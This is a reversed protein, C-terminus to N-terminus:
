SGTPKGAVVAPTKEAATLVARASVELPRFSPDHRRAEANAVALALQLRQQYLSLAVQYAAANEGDDSGFTASSSVSGTSGGRTVAGESVGVTYQDNGEIIPPIPRPEALAQAANMVESPSAERMIYTLGNCEVRIAVQPGPADTDIMKNGNTIIM